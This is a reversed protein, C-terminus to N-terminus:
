NRSACIFVVGYKHLSSLKIKVNMLVLALRTLDCHRRVVIMLVQIISYLFEFFGTVVILTKKTDRLVFVSTELKENWPPCNMQQHYSNDNQCTYELWWKPKILNVLNKM